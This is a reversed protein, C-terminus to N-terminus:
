YVDDGILRFCYGTYEFCAINVTRGEDPGSVVPKDNRIPIAKTMVKVMIKKVLKIFAPFRKGCM